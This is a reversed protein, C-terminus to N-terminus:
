KAKELEDRADALAEKWAKRSEVRKAVMIAAIDIVEDAHKELFDSVPERVFSDWERYGQPMHKQTLNWIRDRVDNIAREEIYKKVTTDDFDFAVNIIHQM